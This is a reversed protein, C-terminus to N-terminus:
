KEVGAVGCPVELGMRKGLSKKDSVITMKIQKSKCVEIIKNKFDVDSDRALLIEEVKNESVARM